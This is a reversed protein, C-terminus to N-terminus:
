RNKRAYKISSKEVISKFNAISITYGLVILIDGELFVFDDNPNFIFKRKKFDINKSIGLLILKYAEINLDKISKGELMCGHVVEVQECRANRKGSLISNIANTVIPKDVLTSVLMSTMNAASVVKDVGALKLKKYSNKNRM